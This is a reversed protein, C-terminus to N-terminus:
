INRALVLINEATHKIKGDVSLDAIAESFDELANEFEASDYLTFTSYHQNRAKNILSDISEKRTHRFELIDELELGRTAKVAKVLRDISHLRKERMSFGPFYRGWITKENQAPTRTYISLLGNKRLVRAAEGLFSKLNFHHIANFTTIVDFSSEAFPMLDADVFCYYIREPFFASSMLRKCERLMAGSYDCCFIRADDEVKEAMLKTYRGTGCGIDAINRPSNDSSIYPIIADVIDPDTDRISAHISAIKEFHYHVNKSGTKM